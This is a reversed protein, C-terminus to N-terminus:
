VLWHWSTGGFKNPYPTAALSKYFAAFAPNSPVDRFDMWSIGYTAKLASAFGQMMATAFGNRLVEPDIGFHGVEIGDHNATLELIQLYGIKTKGVNIYLNPISKDGNLLTTPYSPLKTIPSNKGILEQLYAHQLLNNKLEQIIKLQLTRNLKSM